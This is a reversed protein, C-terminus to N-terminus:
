NPRGPGRTVGHRARDAGVFRLARASPTALDPFYGEGLGGEKQVTAWVKSETTTSTVVGAKDSPLYGDDIGPAGPPAAAGAAAPLASVVLAALAAVLLRVSSSSM